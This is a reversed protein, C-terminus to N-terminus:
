KLLEALPAKLAAAWIAYGVENPHLLDPMFDTPLTGDPYLFKQGIDLYHVKAGDHLRAIGENVAAVQARSASDKEGRPFVALLLVKATPLKTRLGQVTATVGEIIEPVTNRLTVRDREFGTNNTGIMVVAVKPRINALQGHTLRWIVHETRDGGFGLNIPKRQAYFQQWVSRGDDEWGQTISDGIFALEVDGAAALQNAVQNRKQWGPEDSRTAPIVASNVGYFRRLDQYRKIM